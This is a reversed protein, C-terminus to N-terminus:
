MDPAVGLASALAMLDAIAGSAVNGVKANNALGAAARGIARGAEERSLVGSDLLVALLEGLLRSTSLARSVSLAILDEDSPTPM